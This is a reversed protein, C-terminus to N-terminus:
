NIGNEAQVARIFAIIDKLDADTLGEIIPMNGFRWHHSQVGRRAALIIAMDGHHGPRYFAHVLPPGNGDVGGANPGHCRACVAQFANQGRKAAASLDPVKVAVIEGSEATSDSVVGQVHGPAPAEDSAAAMAPTEPTKAQQGNWWYAGIALGALVVGGIVYKM